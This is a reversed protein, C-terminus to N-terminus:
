IITQVTENWEEKAKELQILAEDRERKYNEVREENYKIGTMYYCTEENKIWKTRSSVISELREIENGIRNITNLVETAKPTHIM